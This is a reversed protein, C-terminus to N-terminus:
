KVTLPFTIEITFINGSVLARISGGSREVLGKAISLGLGTSSGSRASDSKYFRRFVKDPDIDGAGAFRNSCRFLAADPDRRSLELSLHDTGHELANKIVNQLARKVAETNAWIMLDEELFDINPEKGHRRFEDYFSFVTDLVCETFSIESSTIECGEGELRAYTFLEELMDKLSATRSSIVAMYHAREEEDKADALLQLYGDISTLPTRIDHSLNVITDKMQEERQRTEEEVKRSHDIVANIEDILANIEKFPINETLRMSVPNERLFVLQGCIRRIQSRYAAGTILAAAALATVAITLITM